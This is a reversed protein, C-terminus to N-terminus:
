AVSARYQIPDLDCSLGLAGSLVFVKPDSRFRFVRYLRYQDAHTNSVSDERASTFFPTMEGFTTTKVEILRERGDTEFSLVDFGLGDGRTVSVHELKEALHREGSEWLRRHELAMVFAEGALGLSSNRAERELYNTGLRPTVTPAPRERWRDLPKERKPPDVFLGSVDSIDPLAPAPAVVATAAAAVLAPEAPLRAVVEDRLMAQYNSRPKYGEIYPFGLEILVASINQHKFEIAGGSRDRLLEQLRRNHDRKNYPEGQLEFTLMAFYDTVTAAVEEPSWDQPV